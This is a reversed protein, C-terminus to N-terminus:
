NRWMEHIETVRGDSADVTLAVSYSHKTNKFDVHIYWSELRGITPRPKAYIIKLDTINEDYLTKITKEVIPKLDNVDRVTKSKEM